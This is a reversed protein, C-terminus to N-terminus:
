RRCQGRGAQQAANGRHCRPVGARRRGGRGRPQPDARVTPLPAPEAMSAILVTHHGSGSDHGAGPNQHVPLRPPCGTEQNIIRFVEDVSPRPPRERDLRSANPWPDAADGRRRGTAIVGDRHLSLTVALKEESVQSRRRSSCSREDGKSKSCTQDRSSGAGRPRHTGDAPAPLLRWPWCCRQWRPPM